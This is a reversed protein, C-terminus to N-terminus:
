KAGEQPFNLRAFEGFHRLAAADYARAADEEKEYSGLNHNKGGTHLQAFFKGHKFTTGRFKRGDRLKQNAINQSNTAFRLNSRRNDLTDGNVHDVIVDQTAGVIFRHLYVKRKGVGPFIFDTAAYVSRRSDNLWWKYALVRKADCEDVTVLTGPKIEFSVANEVSGDELAYIHSRVNAYIPKHGRPDGAARAGQIVNHVASITLGHRKAIDRLLMRESHWAVLIADRDSGIVRGKTTTKIDIRAPIDSPIM